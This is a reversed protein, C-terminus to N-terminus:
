GFVLGGGIDVLAEATAAGGGFEEFVIGLVEDVVVGGSDGALDVVDGGCAENMGGGLIFVFDGWFGDVVGHGLEAQRLLIGRMGWLYELCVRHFMRLWMGM